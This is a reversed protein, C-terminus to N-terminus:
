ATKRTKDALTIILFILASATMPYFLYTITFIELVWGTVFPGAISGLGYFFSFSANATGIKEPPVLDGILSLAVPYLAGAVFGIFFVLICIIYYNQFVNFLATILVLLVGCVELVPRKGMRDAIKGAPLPSITGGVAFCTFVIGLSAGKITLSDLYLALFSSMAIEIVAYCAGALLPIKIKSIIDVFGWQTKKIPIKTENFGFYLVAIGVFCWFSALTFPAAPTVTYLSAGAIPGLAFGVAFVLGYLGMNSARKEPPSITNIAAETPAFLFASGVGQFIRILYFLTPTPTFPMLLFSLASILLGSIIIKKSGIREIWGGLFLTTVTFTLFYTTQIQGISASSAGISDLLLPVIPSAFSMGFALLFVTILISILPKSM